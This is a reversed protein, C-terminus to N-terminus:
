VGIRPVEVHQPLLGLLPLFVFFSLFLFSFELKESHENMKLRLEKLMKIIIIKFEKNLLNRIEVKSLEEPTKDLEKMQVKNRQQSM